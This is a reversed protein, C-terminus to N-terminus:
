PELEELPEADDSSYVHIFGNLNKLHMGSIRPEYVDCIYYYVGSPVFRQTQQYRGDWNIDPDTTEFVLKGWRNYIKMDVEKVYNNINVARYVDNINDGNPSFVNPLKYLSCVDICIKISRPSENGVSDTASIQYCGALSAESYHDYSFISPDDIQAIEVTSDTQTPSYFITYSVIEDDHCEVPLEWTLHNYGSDCLSEVNLVPTCPPVTDLPIGSNVHTKNLTRYLISDAIYESVGTLQYFYETGNTLGTHIYETTNMLTDLLIKEGDRLMYVSDQINRWPADKFYAISNLNDAPYVELYTSSALGGDSALREIGSNSETYYLKVQYTYPFQITNIMSDLYITDDLNTTSFIADFAQPNEPTARLLEYRYPSGGPLTDLFERPPRQWKVLIEGSEADSNEVSIQLIAPTGQILTGCAMLSPISPTENEFVARIIYCYDVGQELGNLKIDKFVFQDAPVESIKEFNYSAAIQNSCSDPEFVETGTKRFIEFGTINDCLPYDWTVTITDTGSTATVNEPPPGLVQINFNDIDVSRIIEGEQNINSDESKVVIFYPEQRVHECTTIWSFISRSYGSGTNASDLVFRAPSNELVLPGGVVSQSISDNDQDIAIIEQLVTDGAVVCIDNLPQNEPPLNDTEVVEIQMDRVINGIKVGSRWEEINMAVNYIGVEIPADWILDGTISDVRLSRSAAPFEYDEIPIGDEGTCTTLSYSLSDGDPDYAAPNHIFTQGLAAKDIPYNLLQPANNFGINPNIVLTSKISFVVNVSNPINKVGLNRNPDQVFLQYTGPGPFTHTAKYINRQYLDPLRTLEIRQAISSTNDGWFIELRDRDAASPTFTFTTITVEYTLASIQKYTIEGARNHTANVGTSVFLLLVLIYLYKNM